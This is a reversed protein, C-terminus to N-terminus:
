ITQKFYKQNLRVTYYGVAVMLLGAVILSLPWGISSTFYEGTIKFIYITLFIAGFVLFPKSKLYVSLFLAAFVLGVFGVEWFVNQNPNYGGLALASGLFFLVGFGYLFGRLVARQTQAFYYGLLLYSLGTILTRYEFFKSDFISNGIYVLFGTFAYFFWTGFIVELVIFLSSRFVFFSALFVLFVIGSIFSQTSSASVNYGAHDILISLGLPMLLASILFFGLGAEKLNENQQYFLVGVIYAAISSGLTVFVKTFFNLNNWNQFVYISIGFFVIASGIYYLIHSINLKSSVVVDQSSSSEFVDLVEEKNILNSAAAQKLETLLQEKDM